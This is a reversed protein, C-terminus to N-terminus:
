AMAGVRYAERLWGLVEADLDVLSTVRVTHNYASGLKEVKRIRKRRLPRRLVFTFTMLAWFPVRSGAVEPQGSADEARPLAAAGQYFDPRWWEARGALRMGGELDGAGPHRSFATGSRTFWVWDDRIVKVAVKRELAGDIAEYVTGM